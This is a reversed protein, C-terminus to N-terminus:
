PHIRFAPLTAHVPFRSGLASLPWAQNLHGIQLRYSPIGALLRDSDPHLLVSRVKAQLQLLTTERQIGIRRGLEAATLPSEHCVLDILHFWKVLSIKSRFMVTGHRVGAQHRCDRCEWHARTNLWDGRSSDCRPCKWSTHELRTKLHEVCTQEDPFFERIDFDSPVSHELRLVNELQSKLSQYQKTHWGQFQCASSTAPNNVGSLIGADNLSEDSGNQLLGVASAGLSIAQLEARMGLDMLLLHQTLQRLLRVGIVSNVPYLQWFARYLQQFERSDPTPVDPEITSDARPCDDTSSPVCQTLDCPPPPALLTKQNQHQLNTSKM